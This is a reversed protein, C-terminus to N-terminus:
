KQISKRISKVSNYLGIFLLVSTIFYPAVYQFTSRGMDPGGSSWLVEHWWFLGFAGLLTLLLGLIDKIM